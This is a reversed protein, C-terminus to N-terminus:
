GNPIIVIEVRRNQAKGAADLNSAVPVDEGRGITTIRTPAVGASILVSAVSQARRESLDQNYAAPGDSDTHGVVNVRTNPYSQLSAALTRLDGQLQGTLSASDVPFLIDNPMTVVLSEGTNTIGVNSGLQNRLEAEQRDLLTGATGGITAGAAAGIIANRAREQSNDGSLAGGVAGIGAGILAGRGANESTQGPVPECAALGLALASASLTLAAKNLITQM